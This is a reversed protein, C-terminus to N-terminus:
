CDHGRGDGETNVMRCSTTMSTASLGPVYPKDLLALKTALNIRGDV